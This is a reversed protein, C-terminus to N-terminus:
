WAPHGGNTEGPVHKWLPGSSTNNKTVYNIDGGNALTQLCYRIDEFCAWGAGDSADGGWLKGFDNYILRSTINQVHGDPSLVNWSPIQGEGVHEVDNSKNVTDFALLFTKPFSQLKQFAQGKFTLTVENYYPNFDYGARYTSAKDTPWPNPSTNMVDWGFEPNDNAAPCYCVQANRLYGCAYLRGLQFVTGPFTQQPAAPTGPNSNYYNVAHNKVFYWYLPEQIDTQYADNAPPAVGVSGPDYYVEPLYGKNDQCYMITAQGIQRLNSQCQV